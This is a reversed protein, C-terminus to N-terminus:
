INITITYKTNGIEIKGEDDLKIIKNTIDAGNYITPYFSLMRGKKDKSVKPVNFGQIFWNYEKDKIIMFQKSYICEYFDFSFKSESRGFTFNDTIIRKKDAYKIVIYSKNNVKNFTTQPKQIISQFKYKNKIEKWSAIKDRRYIGTGPLGTNLYIGKKGLTVNAGKVGIGLGLGNRSINIFIGPLAKIRKRFLWGAV